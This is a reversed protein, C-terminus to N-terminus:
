KNLKHQLFARIDVKDDMKKLSFLLSFVILVIFSVMKLIGNELFLLSFTILCLLLCIVFLIVVENSFKFNYKTQVLISLIVLHFVYQLTFAIGLGLLGYFHYGLISLMLYLFNFGLSTKLFLKSDAKALIMYGISFSVTKFFMGFIGVSVMLVIVEFQSSFLLRIIENSLAFFIIIIPTIILIGIFIQQLVVENVKLNDKSIASLRPFYDTSMAVFIIGVYSNLLTFGANYFGVMEISSSFNLYLQILHAVILTILGSFALALGLKIISKGDSLLESNSLKITEFKNKRAFIFAFVLSSLSAILITPVISEIRYFYYLPISLLLGTLNGYFSAKALDKLKRLGQLVVNEASTLQKFLLTVSILVFSFTYSDNGFTIISLWKSFITALIAGIVGTILAIKRVISVQKSVSKLNNKDYSESIHKVGSMELGLSSIGTVINITSNLLAAIGMGIPGVFNAILMNRIISVVISFLQVSGFLSTAKIIQQYAKKSDSLNIDM